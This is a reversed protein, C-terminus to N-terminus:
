VPVREEAAQVWVPAVPTPEMTGPPAAPVPTVSTSPAATPTQIRVPGPTDQDPATCGALTIVALLAGSVCTGHKMIMDQGTRDQGTTDQRQRDASHSSRKAQLWGIVGTLDRATASRTTVSQSTTRQPLSSMNTVRHAYSVRRQGM